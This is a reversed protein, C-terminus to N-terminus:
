SERVSAPDKIEPSPQKPPVLSLGAHPAAASVADEQVQHTHIFVRNLTETDACLELLRSVKAPSCSGYGVGLLQQCARHYERSLERAVSLCSTPHSTLFGLFDRAKLSAIRCHQVTEAMVESPDGSLASTLGIIEGAQATRLILRKGDNTNICLKVRGELLFLVRCAVQNERLLVVGEPVSFVSEFAEFDRMADRSLCKFFAGARSAEYSENQVLELTTAM